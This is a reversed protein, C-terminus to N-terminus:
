VKEMKDEANICRLRHNAQLCALSSGDNSVALSVYSRVSGVQSEKKTGAAHTTPSSSSSSSRSLMSLWGWVGRASSSSNENPTEELASSLSAVEFSNADEFYGSVGFSLFLEEAM